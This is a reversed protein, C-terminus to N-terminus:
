GPRVHTVDGAAVVLLGTSGTDVVLAGALDVDVATGTRSSGDPLDVEVRRGITMSARRYRERLASDDPESWWWGLHASLASLYAALLITRDLVRAKEVSLSTATTVPLDRAPLSVNLGMGVVVRREDVRDALIGAVKRGDVLLDNPWKLGVDVGPPLGAAAVADLVALGTVLPLWSWRRTAIGPSLLVSVALGSRPPATWERDLRGRGASQYETTLVARNAGARAAAVLSVNTSGVEDVVTLSGFLEVDLATQLREVDLPQEASNM